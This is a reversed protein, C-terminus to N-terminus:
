RCYDPHAIESNKAGLSRGLGTKDGLERSIHKEEKHLVMAGDLDGCAKLILAQNGPTQQLGAKDGM